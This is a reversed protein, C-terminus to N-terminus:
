SWTLKCAAGEARRGDPLVLGDLGLHPVEEVVDSGVPHLLHVRGFSSVDASLHATGM